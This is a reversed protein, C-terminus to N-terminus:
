DDIDWGTENVFEDCEEQLGCMECSIMNMCMMYNFAKEKSKRISKM